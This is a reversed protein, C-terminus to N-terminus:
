AGVTGSFAWSLSMSWHKQINKVDVSSEMQKTSTLNLHLADSFYAFLHYMELFTFAFKSQAGSRCLALWFLKNWITLLIPALTMSLKRITVM